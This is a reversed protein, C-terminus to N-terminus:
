VRLRANAALGPSTRILGDGDLTAYNAAIATAVDQFQAHRITLKQSNAYPAYFGYTAHSIRVHELEISSSPNSYLIAFTAYGSGTPNGTSGTITEGVTNDDKATFVAERYASTQCQLKGLVQLYASAGAMYKIVSGGELTNTGYLLVPGTVYYTTDGKFIYNTLSSNLSVYDLVFSAAPNYTAKAMRRTADPAAKVYRKPLLSRLGALVNEGRGRRELSAGQYKDAAPLKKLQEAVKEYRVEEILFDRGELPGEVPRLWQKAVPIDGGNQGDADVSFAKGMGIGTGGFGLTEDTLDGTQHRVKTPPPAEVFETLVQLRTQKPNLGFAEPGPPNERLVIDQEFGARTYTYRLDAGFDTFADPYVVV